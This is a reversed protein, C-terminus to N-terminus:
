DLHNEVMINSIGLFLWLQKRGFIILMYRFLTGTQISKNSIVVFMSRFCNIAIKILKKGNLKFLEEIYSM